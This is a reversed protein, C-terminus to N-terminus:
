KSDLTSRTEQHWKKTTKQLIHRTKNILPFTIWGSCLLKHRLCTKTWLDSTTKWFWHVSSASCPALSPLWRSEPSVCTPLIKDTVETTDFMELWETAHVNELSMRRRIRCLIYHDQKNRTKQCSPTTFFLGSLDLLIRSGSCASSSTHQVSSFILDAAIFWDTANYILVLEIGIQM